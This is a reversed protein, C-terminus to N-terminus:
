LGLAYLMHVSIGKSAVSSGARGSIATNAACYIPYPGVMMPPLNLTTATADFKFEAIYTTLTLNYLQIEYIGISTATYAAIGCVWFETTITSAALIATLTGWAPGAAAVLAVGSAGAGGLAPYYKYSIVAGSGQGTLIQNSRRDFQGM